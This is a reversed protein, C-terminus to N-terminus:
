FACAKIDKAKDTKLDSFQINLEDGSKEKVSIKDVIGSKNVHIQATKFFVAEVKKPTLLYDEGAAKIEFDEGLQSPNLSMLKLLSTMQQSSDQGIESFAIKKKKGGSDLVVGKSDLCVQSKSPKEVNWNFVSAKPDLRNVLFNGETKIEVGLESLVKVQIFRGKLSEFSKLNMKDLLEKHSAAALAMQASLGLCLISTFLFKMVEGFHGFCQM